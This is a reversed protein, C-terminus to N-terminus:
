IKFNSNKIVMNHSITKVSVVFKFIVDFHTKIWNLQHRLRTLFKSDTTNVFFQLYLDLFFITIHVICPYLVLLSKEESVKLLFRGNMIEYKSLDIHYFSDM